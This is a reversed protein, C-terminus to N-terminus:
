TDELTIGLERLRKELADARAKEADARDKETSLAEATANARETAAGLAEATANARETEAGLAEATANARETEAGLAEATANARDFQDRYSQMPTGDANLIRFVDEEAEFTIGLLPSTWGHMCLIPTSHGSNIKWGLFSDTMPDVVYFEQVGYRSYFTLKDAIERPSNCPSLVEFVVQPIVNDEKWQLYSPRHGKPRGLAVMVDPALVIKPKGEVPYWFLDGVVLDELACDLSGKITVIWEYQVTNEAM